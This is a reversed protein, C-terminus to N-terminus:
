SRRRGGGSIRLAFYFVQLLSSILAAIYTLAAANLVTSVGREEEGSTIIGTSALLRRARTSANLEVPLTALAFVAGASFFALGVWALNTIGLLLGAFILIWGLNSGINVVPVLGASQPGPRDTRESRARPHRELGGLAAPRAAPTRRGGM